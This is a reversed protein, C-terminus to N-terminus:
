PIRGGAVLAPTRLAPDEVLDDDRMAILILRCISFSRTALDTTGGDHGPATAAMWGGGDFRLHGPSRGAM